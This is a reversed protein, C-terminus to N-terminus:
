GDINLSCTIDLIDSLTIDLSFQFDFRFGIKFITVDSAAWLSVEIVFISINQHVKLRVVLFTSHIYRGFQLDSTPNVLALDQAIEHEAYEHKTHGESSCSKEDNFQRFLCFEAFKYPVKWARLPSM